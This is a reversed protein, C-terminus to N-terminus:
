FNIQVCTKQLSKFQELTLKTMLYDGFITFYTKSSFIFNVHQFDDSNSYAASQIIEGVWIIVDYPSWSFLLLQGFFKIKSFYM